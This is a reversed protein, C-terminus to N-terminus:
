TEEIQHSFVLPKFQVNKKQTARLLKFYDLKKVYSAGFAKLLPTVMQVDMWDMGLGKLWYVTKLLALKSVNDQLHFMSEGSFVGNVFVGYLGGVLYNNEYVEISHAYGKKNLGMYHPKLHDNIWTGLQGKRPAKSCAEVVGSFDNDLKYTYRERTKEVFKYLSKSVHLNEFRLIGRHSPCFWLLPYEDHPWPFIGHSYAELLINTDIRDDALVIDDLLPSCPDPFHVRKIM